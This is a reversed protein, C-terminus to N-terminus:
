QEGRNGKSSNHSRCMRQYVARQAHFAVWHAAIDQDKIRKTAGAGIEELEFDPWIALFELAIADFSMTAHDTTMHGNCGGKYAWACPKDSNAAAYDDMHQKVEERLTKKLLQERTPPTIAKVWSWSRWGGIDLVHVHRTAKPHDQNTMHMADPWQTGCAENLKSLAVPDFHAGIPTADIAAQAMEIRSKKTVKTM